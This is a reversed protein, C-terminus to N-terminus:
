ETSDSDEHTFFVADVNQAAVMDLNEDYKMNIGHVITGGQLYAVFPSIVYLIRDKKDYIAHEAEYYYGNVQLLKIDEDLFLAKGISRGHRAQLEKTSGGSYILNTMKLVADNKVSYDAIIKSKIGTANVEITVSDFVELQKDLRNKELKENKIKILYSVSLMIAIMIIALLEIRFYKGM